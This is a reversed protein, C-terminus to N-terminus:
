SRRPPRRLVQGELVVALVLAAVPAGISELHEVVLGALAGVQEVTVVVELLAEAVVVEDFPCELAQASFPWKLAFHGTVRLDVDRNM